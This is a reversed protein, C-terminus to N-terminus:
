WRRCDAALHERVRVGALSRRNRRPVSAGVTRTSPMVIAPAQAPGIVMNGVHECLLSSSWAVCMGRRKAATAARRGPAQAPVRPHARRRRRSTRCGRCCSRTPAASWACRVRNAGRRHLAAHRRVGWRRAETRRRRGEAAPKPAREPKMDPRIPPRIPAPMPPRSSPWPNKPPLAPSRRSGRAEQQLDEQDHESTRKRIRSNRLRTAPARRRVSCRRGRRRVRVPGPM